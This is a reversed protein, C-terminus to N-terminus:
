AASRFAATRLVLKGTKGEESSERAPKEDLKDAPVGAAKEPAPQDARKLIEVAKQVALDPGGRRSMAVVEDPERPSKELRVGKITVYDDIPYQVSFGSPLAGYVSALVAGATKQGVLPAGACEKLAAAAIESASASGRNILVAIKGTWGQEENATRFKRSWWKAVELVDKGDGKGAKVYENAARRSVFTGVVTNPPLVQTLFHRLNTTAGGGNSRLDIILYKAKDAAQDVLKEILDRDYGKAFTHVQLLAVDPEPFTLTDPRLMSFARRKIKLESESGDGKSVTLTVESGESGRLEGPEGPKHGDVAVIKDGPQLGAEAAPGKPMLDVILLRDEDKQTVIGLGVTSNTERQVTATPSRLRLHSLGFDRLASNVARAFGEQQEANDIAERHKELFTPWQGMDVGPVFARQTVIDGLAKLIDEKQEVSIPQAWSPLALALLAVLITIRRLLTTM